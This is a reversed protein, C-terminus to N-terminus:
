DTLDRSWTAPWTNTTAWGLDRLGVLVEFGDGDHHGVSCTM